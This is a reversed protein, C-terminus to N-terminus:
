QRIVVVAGTMVLDKEFCTMPSMDHWPTRADREGEWNDRQQDWPETKLWLMERRENSM